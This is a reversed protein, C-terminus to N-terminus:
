AWARRRLLRRLRRRARGPDGGLAETRHARERGFLWRRLQDQAGVLLAAFLILFPVVVDFARAIPTCCSVRARSAASGRRGAAADRDRQGQGALDRRQALTAGLYGPCMAVTNTVSATVPPLGVAVLTPFTILSGGGAIANIAGASSRPARRRCSPRRDTMM